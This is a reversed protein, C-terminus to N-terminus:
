EGGNKERYASPSVGIKKKFSNSFYYQNAYGCRSSIEKLSINSNVLYKCAKDIRYSTITDSISIKRVKKYLASMYSPSVNVHRAIDNLSLSSDDYNESIYIHALECVQNHYTDLSTDMKKCVHVCLQNMWEYFQEYTQFSDFHTYAEIIESELDSTDINLEYLFKLIRGLLSYIRIFMMNKTPYKQTQELFFTHLWKEIALLDKQCLLSIFEEESSDSFSLLSFDQGLAEKADFINQHPFFFHYKLAHAANEYSIHLDWIDNVISGIGINMKLLNSPYDELLSSLVKHTSQLFHNPNKTNQALIMIIDNLEKVFFMRDFIGYRDRLLDIVHLVEMQYRTIGLQEELERSNGFNVKVVNFYDFNLDLNLFVPYRGLYSEADKGKYTMLDLFFKEIMLPRSQEILERNHNEQDISLLAHKTKETLYDYDIPKEIYDCVGLRIARKAYEFKDYASILIIKVSPNISVALSSMSIGDLDPMEIDSIILDVPEAKMSTIAASGSSEIHIVQADMSNWDINRAIGESSISNDDVIMVKKM